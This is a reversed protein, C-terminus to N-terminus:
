NEYNEGKNMLFKELNVIAFYSKLCLRVVAWAFLMNLVGRVLEECKIALKLRGYKRESTLVWVFRSNM